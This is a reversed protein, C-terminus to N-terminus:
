IQSKIFDVVGDKPLFGVQMGAKEGEKLVVLAPISTIGFKQALDPNEDVDVNYFSVADSMEGSVEELVPALMKCPGCWTTYFDIVAPRTGKYVWEDPHEVYDMIKNRFEATSLYDVVGANKGSDTQSQEEAVQEVQKEVNKKNSSCASLVTTMALIIYFIRKM